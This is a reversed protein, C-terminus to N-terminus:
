DMPYRDVKPSATDFDATLLTIIDKKDSLMLKPLPKQEVTTTKESTEKIKKKAM